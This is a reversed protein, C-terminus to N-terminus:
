KNGKLIEHLKKLVETFEKLIGNINMPKKLSENTEM